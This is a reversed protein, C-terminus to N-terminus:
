QTNQNSDKNLLDKLSNVVVKNEDSKLEIQITTFLVGIIELFADSSSKVSISFRM